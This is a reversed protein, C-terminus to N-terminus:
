HGDGDAGGGIVEAVVDVQGGADGTPARAGAGVLGGDVALGRHQDADVPHGGGALVYRHAGVVAISDGGREIELRPTRMVRLGARAARTRAKETFTACAVTVVVVTAVWLKLAVALTILLQRIEPRVVM